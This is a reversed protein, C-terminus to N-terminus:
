MTWCGLWMPQQFTPILSCVPANKCGHNTILKNCNVANSQPAATKGFSPAIFRSALKKRDWVVSTERQNTIGIAAVDHAQVNADTLAQRCAQLTTQWIEEPDHEVYGNAPFYQKFEFQGRGVVQLRANYLMARSSTTGQDIALIYTKSM